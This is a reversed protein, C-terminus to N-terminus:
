IKEKCILFDLVIIALVILLGQACIGKKTPARGSVLDLKTKAMVREVFVDSMALIFVIFVVFSLKCSRSLDYVVPKKKCGTKKKVIVPEDDADSDDSDSEDRCILTSDSRKKGM